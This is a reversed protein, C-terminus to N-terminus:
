EFLRSLLKEEEAAQAKEASYREYARSRYDEESMGKQIEKYIAVKTAGLANAINIVTVKKRLSEELLQRKELTFVRVGQRGMARGGKM